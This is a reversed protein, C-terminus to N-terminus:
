AVLMASSTIKRTDARSTRCACSCQGRLARLKEGCLDRLRLSCRDPEGRLVRLARLNPQSVPTGRRRAGQRGGAQGDPLGVPAVPHSESLREGRAFGSVLVDRRIADRRGRRAPVGTISAGRAGHGRHNFKSTVEPRETTIRLAATASGAAPVARRYEEYAPGFRLALEREEM